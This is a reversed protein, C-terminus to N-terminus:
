WVEETASANKAIVAKSVEVSRASIFRGQVDLVSAPIAKTGLYAANDDGIVTFEYTDASSTGAIENRLAVYLLDTTPASPKVNIAGPTSVWTSGELCFERILMGSTANVFFQGVNLADNGDKFGFRYVSQQHQFDAGSTRISSGEIGTVNVTGMSYDYTDEISGIGLLTGNQGSYDWSDRPLMLLLEDGIEMGEVAVEGSLEATTPKEGEFPVVSLEGICVGGKYVKVKETDKWYAELYDEDLSLAKSDVVKVAKLNMSYRHLESVSEPAQVLEAQCGALVMAALAAIIYTRINKM